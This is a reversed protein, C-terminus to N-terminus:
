LANPPQGPGNKPTLAIARRTDMLGVVIFLLGSFFITFYVLFLAPTRWSKGRTRYHFSALGALLFGSGFAGCIVAGAIGVNGGVFMMVMGALFAYIANGNMRLSSPMDERPRLTKTSMRVILAAFYYAAFILIVWLAAQTMPLIYFYISKVADLSLSDMALNPDQEAMASAVADILRSVTTRDYDSIFLVACVAVAVMACVQLLMDSLPYWALVNEPGGLETAPRAMNALRAMWASQIQPVLLIILAFSPSVSYALVAFCAALAAFSAMAGFALGSILVPMASLIMLFTSADINRTAGLVLFASAVGALGGALLSTMMSTNL